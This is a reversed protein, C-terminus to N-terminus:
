ISQFIIYLRMIADGAHLKRIGTIGGEYQETKAICRIL